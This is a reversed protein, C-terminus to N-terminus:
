TEQWLGQPTQKLEFTAKEGRLEPYAAACACPEKTFAVVRVNRAEESVENGMRKLSAFIRDGAELQNVIRLAAATREFPLRDSMNEEATRFRLAEGPGCDAVTFSTATGEQSWWDRWMVRGEGLDVHDAEGGHSIHTTRSCASLTVAQATTGVAM